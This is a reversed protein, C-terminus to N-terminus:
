SGGGASDSFVNYAPGRNLGRPLSLRGVQFNSRRLTALAAKQRGILAPHVPSNNAYCADVAATLYLAQEYEPPLSVVTEISAFSQLVDKTLIHLEYQNGPVPWPYFKGLPYGSDFFYYQSPAAKLTKLAIQAYEEYSQIPTLVWDIQMPNTAVTQRIFATEISDTRTMNFDGGAGVTYFTRGDCPFVTDVLHYVLWRRRNWQALTMNLRWLADQTDQYSPQREPGFVGSDELALNLLDGVSRGEVKPMRLNSQQTNTEALAAEAAQAAQDMVPDAAVGYARRFAPLLTAYLAEEYEPPLSLLDNVDTYNPLQAKTLVHLTFASSALPWIFVAGYPYSPDYYAYLPNGTEQKAAIRAFEEYSKIMRLSTSTTGQVCYAAEISNTRAINLTQGAGLAYSAAGSCACSTDVLSYVMLRRRAWQNLVFNLRTIGDITDQYSPKRGELAGSDELALNVFDGAHTGDRKPLRLQSDQLNAEQLTKLTEQALGSAVDDPPMRYANRFLVILNSYIAGLYEPPLSVATTLAAFQQLVEKTAVHLTFSSDALPWLFVAGNPYGSDYFAYLPDGTQGMAVIRDFEERSQMIRLPTTNGAKVVYVADLRDVRAINITQGTGLAYSAAGSCACSSDILHYVLWRRRNWQSLMMNLRFLGDATDQDLATQGVGLVGSDRLALNILDGATTTM